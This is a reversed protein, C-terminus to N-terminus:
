ESGLYANIVKENKQIEHPTGEAIVQGRDLVYVRESAEMAVNMNHEILIISKGKKKLDRILQILEGSEEYTLGAASEDLLIVEPNLAMARAIELRRQLALPLDKAEWREYKELGLEALLSLAKEAHVSGTYTGFCTLRDYYSHGYSVLVNELVTLDKFPQCIQFTRGIGKSAIWHPKRGQIEEGRFLIRGSSPRYVGCTVNFFTTKGAGNPGIVGLIENRRLQLTVGVLAQIGGFHKSVNETSLLADM